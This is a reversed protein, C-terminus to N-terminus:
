KGEEEILPNYRVRHEEAVLISRLADYATSLVDNVILYDYQNYLQMEKEAWKLRTSIISDSETKRKKLRQELENLSPPILFILRAETVGKLLLAGQTDIVLFVHNGMALQKEVWLKSTGYYHGYLQVHELFEENKRRELFEETSVFYYHVANVEGARPQRTTYSISATVHPFENTLLQILTTKGTGAPASLIFLLGRPAQILSENLIKFRNV